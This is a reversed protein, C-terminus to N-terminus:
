KIKNTLAEWIVVLLWADDDSNTEMDSEDENSDLNNGTQGNKAKHNSRNEM